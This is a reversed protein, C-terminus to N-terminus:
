WLCRPGFAVARFILGQVLQLRITGGNIGGATYSGQANDPISGVLRTGDSDRTGNPIRFLVWNWKQNRGELPIQGGLAAAYEPLIGTLFRFDRQQGDSGLVASDGYVLMLIDIVEHDAWEEFSADAINLYAETVKLANVGAIEMETTVQDGGTLIRLEDEIWEDGLPSLLSETDVYHVVANLDATEPWDDPSFPGEQASVDPALGLGAIVM